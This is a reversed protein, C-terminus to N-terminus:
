GQQRSNRPKTRATSPKLDDAVSTIRSFEGAAFPQPPAPDGLGAPRRKAELWTLTRQSMQAAAPDPYAAETWILHSRSWRPRWTAARARGNQRQLM